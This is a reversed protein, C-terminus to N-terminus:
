ACRGRQTPEIVFFKQTITRNSQVHLVCFNKTVTGAISDFSPVALEEFTSVTVGSILMLDVFHIGGVYWYKFLAWKWNERKWEDQREKSKNREKVAAM